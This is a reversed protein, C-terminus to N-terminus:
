DRPWLVELTHSDYIIGDAVTYKLALTHLIDDLPNATLVLLDAIKGPELSGVDQQIGIKEAGIMTAARIIEAPSAGGQQLLWM